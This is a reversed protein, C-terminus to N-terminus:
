KESQHIELLSKDISAVKSDVISQCDYCKLAVPLMKLCPTCFFVINSVVSSLVNCVNVSIKACNRHQCSKCWFVSWYIMLPQNSAFWVNTMKLNRTRRTLHPVQRKSSSELTSWPTILYNWIVCM